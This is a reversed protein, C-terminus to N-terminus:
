LGFDRKIARTFWIAKVNMKIFRKSQYLISNSRTEASINEGNDRCYMVLRESPVYVKLNHKQCHIMMNTHPIAGFMFHKYSDSNLESCSGLLGDSLISSSGCYLSFENERNFIGSSRYYVYGRNLVIAEAGKVKNIEKVFDRHILDDADLAYWREVGEYLSRLFQVGKLIKSCRDREYLLQNFARDNTLEPPRLESLSVFEIGSFLQCSDELFKPKEHGVVVASFNRDTQQSLSILTRRLNRCTVEWNSAVLRSKLPIIIALSM